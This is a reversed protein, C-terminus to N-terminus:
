AWIFDSSSLSSVGVVHGILEDTKGFVGNRNTDGYIAMGNSGNLKLSRVFYTNLDDSLQIKDGPGFDMIQAYDGTGASSTSGDSYFVGRADGLAFIDNGGGGTLFDKTGMGLLTGFEPIGCILEGATTGVLTDSSSTGYIRTSSSPPPPVAGASTGLMVQVDLRGGTVTKGALAATPTVSALLADRIASASATPNKAAYLVAAGTVHPTAMSTGSMTGYGGNALTSYISSGPAGLDVTKSGYNSFSSLGGTSTISAVSVVAEYGASSLTSYNSPYNATVDTDTTSNGAAVIFLNGAAATRDIAEQMASSYGGGGWSNNTAVFDQGSAVKSAATYYDLAKVANSIFGSGDAALFKLGM